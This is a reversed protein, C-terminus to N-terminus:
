RVKTNVLMVAGSAFAVPVTILFATTWGLAEAVGGLLLPGLALGINQGLILIGMASGSQEPSGAAESAAAFACVPLVPPVIGLIVVYPLFWQTPIFPILAFSAASIVMSAAGLVRRSGTRDSLLGSLLSSVIAALCCISTLSAADALAMGRNKVLYTPLFTQISVYSIVYLGIAASLLWITKSAMVSGSPSSLTMPKQETSNKKSELRAMLILWIMLFLMTYASALWWVSQWGGLVLVRPALNYTIVQGIGMYCAFLGMALGRSKPNAAVSVISPGAIAVLAMGAGEVVRSLVLLAFSTTLAGAVSGALLLVLAALVCQWPGFKRILMGGPLALAIGTLPLVSILLSLQTEGIKLTEMLYPAIASVKNLHLPAAVATLLLISMIIAPSVIPKKARVSHM